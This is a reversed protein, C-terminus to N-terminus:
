LIRCPVRADIKRRVKDEEHILIVSAISAAVIDLVLLVAPIIITLQRADIISTDSTLHSHTTNEPVYRDCDVAAALPSAFAFLHFLLCTAALYGALAYPIKM